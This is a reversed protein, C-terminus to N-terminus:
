FVGKLTLSGPGIGVQTKQEGKPATFWLVGGTVLGVAGVIFGVTAVTGSTRASTELDFARPSCDNPYDGCEDKVDGWKNMAIIGFAAGVGLGVVGVGATVLGWTRQTRGPHADSTLAASSTTSPAAADESAAASLPPVAVEVQDGDTGVQVKTQFAAHGPAQATIEHTGPDVPIATSLAARDVLLGDRRVEVGGPNEGLLRITLTSLRSELAASRSRALDEREPSGSARAVPIAERYEAWASATKGTKEYCDALNLMTGLGPDLKQSAAFKECAEPYRGQEVLTRGEVFLAEAAAKSDGAQAAANTGWLAVVGVFLLHRLWNVTVVYVLM